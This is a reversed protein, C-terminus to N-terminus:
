GETPPKIRSSVAVAALALLATLGFTMGLATGMGAGHNHTLAVAGGGLGSLAAIASTQSLQLAAGTRGQQDTPAQALVAASAANYAIGMGFGGIAWGLVAVLPPVADILVTGALIAIGLFLVASGVASHTPRLRAGHRDDWRAQLASGAVWTLAGASLGLGAEVTSLGRLETLGLPLFTDAGFYAGALLWRMAIGAPLGRRARTTGAPTLARYSLVAVVAGVSALLLVPVLSSFEFAAIMLGMGLALVLSAALDRLRRGKTNGAEGATDAAGAQSTGAGPADGSAGPATSGGSDGSGGLARLAPLTLLAALMTPIPLLLFLSRWSLRDALTGAIVPGILAPLTWASSTLAVMRAQLHDPYARGIVLYALGMIAGVGLGQVFRGVVFVWWTPAVGAVVCGAALLGLAVALPRRPGVRDGATGAVVAGLISALMLASLGWGYSELGDLRRAIHPMIAVVGMAEFAVLGVSILLGLSLARHGHDWM